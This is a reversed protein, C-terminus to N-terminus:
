APEALFELLLRNFADPRELSPLHGAGEITALRGRPLSSALAGADSVSVLEDQEGVVVLAPEDIEDVVPSSDPRNAMATQARAFSRPRVEEILGEVQEVVGPRKRRTEEGVLRGSLLRVAARPGEALVEESALRRKMRAPEDDASARSGVLVLREIRERHHRWFAFAVYGGMSAGCLTVREVELHDLLAAVDDAFLEVSLPEDGPGSRGFGRLDPAIWRHSAPLRELQPTWMRADLPFAHLLVVADGSGAEYWHLSAGRLTEGSSKM